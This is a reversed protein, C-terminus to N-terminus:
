VTQEQSQQTSLTVPQITNTSETSFSHNRQMNNDTKNPVSGLYFYARPVNENRRFSCIHDVDIADHATPPRRRNDHSTSHNYINNNLSNSRDVDTSYIRPIGIRKPSSHEEPRHPVYRNTYESFIFHRLFFFSSFISVKYCANYTSTSSISKTCTKKRGSGM